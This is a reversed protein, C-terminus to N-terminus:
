LDGNLHFLDIASLCKHIHTRKNATRLNEIFTYFWTHTHPIFIYVFSNFDLSLLITLISFYLSTHCPIPDYYRIQTYAKIYDLIM